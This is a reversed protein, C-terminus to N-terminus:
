KSIQLDKLFKKEMAAGNKVISKMWKIRLDVQEEESLVYDIGSRHLKETLHFLFIAACVSLNLSETFGFMPITVYSDVNQMAYDSLGELETGFLLATKDDVPLDLIDVGQEYLRLVDAQGAIWALVRAEISSFDVVNLGVNSKIVHRLLSSLAELPKDFTDELHELGQYVATEIAKPDDITPRALNQFQVIKSSWRGTSAAAFKFCGYIRGDVNANRMVNFKKVSAKNIALRMDVALQAIEPLDSLVALTEKQTNEIDVGHSHLFAILNSNQTPNFGFLNRFTVTEREVYETVLDACANVLKLDIPVGTENIKNDLEWAAQEIPSLQKIPLAYYAQRMAEVDLECYMIFKAGEHPMDAMMTRKGEKNPYCFIDILKKGEAYKQQEVKLYSTLAALSSPINLTNAIAYTCIFREIPLYPLSMPLRTAVHKFVSYEFQASHCVIKIDPNNLLYSLGVPVGQEPLFSKVPENELAWAVVLIETTAHRAYAVHGYKILDAESYTEIDLFLVM